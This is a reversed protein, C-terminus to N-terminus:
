RNLIRLLILIISILVVGSLMAIAITRAMKVYMATQKEVLTEISPVSIRNVLYRGTDEASAALDYETAEYGCACRKNSTHNKRDCDVCIWEM